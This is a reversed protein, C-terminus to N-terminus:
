WEGQKCCRGINKNKIVDIRRHIHTSQRGRHKNVLQTGSALSALLLCQIGQFQLQVHSHAVMHARPVSDLHGLFTSKVM